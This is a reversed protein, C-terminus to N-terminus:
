ILGDWVIRVFKETPLFGGGWQEEHETLPEAAIFEEVTQDQSKATSIKDAVDRLVANFAELEAKGAVPGHGPIIRTEEDALMLIQDTAAIMGYIDGGSSYDIFPWFGNFFLDGAQVVNLDPWYVFSDGDTHADAVPIIKFTYGNLRMENAETYTEEPLAAEEAPEVVKDFATITQGKELRKKVNEHAILKAGKENQHANGGTHDQHWHTNLLVKM